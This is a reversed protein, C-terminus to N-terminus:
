NSQSDPLKFLTEGPKSLYYDRRAIEAIYDLDNYNKIDEHLRKEELKLQELREELAIKEQKKEEISNAQAYVTVFGISGLALIIVAMATLRRLLGRRKRKEYELEQERQQIYAKDMERVRSTRNTVM